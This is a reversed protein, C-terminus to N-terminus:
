PQNYILSLSYEVDNRSNSADIILGYGPEIDITDNYYQTNREYVISDRQINSRKLFANYYERDPIIYLDVGEKSQFMITVEADFDHGTRKDYIILYQVLGRELKDDYITEFSAFVATIYLTVGKGGYHYTETAEVGIGVHEWLEDYDLIPIRHGPSAIWGKVVEAGVDTDRSSLPFYYLNETAAFYFIEE